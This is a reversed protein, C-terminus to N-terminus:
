TVRAQLGTVRITATATQDARFTEGWIYVLVKKITDGTPVSDLVWRLTDPGAIETPPVITARAGSGLEAEVAVMIRDFGGPNLDEIKIGEIYSFHSAGNVPEFVAVPYDIPGEPIEVATSENYTEIAKLGAQVTEEKRQAFAVAANFILWTMVLVLPLTLVLGIVREFGAERERAVGRM